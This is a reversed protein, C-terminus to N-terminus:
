TDRNVLHLYIGKETEKLRVTILDYESKGDMPHDQEYIRRNETRDVQRAAHLRHRFYYMRGSDKFKIRVGKPDKMAMDFVDYCDKFAFRSTAMVMQNGQQKDRVVRRRIPNPNCLPPEERTRGRQNALSRPLLGSAM